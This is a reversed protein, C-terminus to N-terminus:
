EPNNGDEGTAHSYLLNFLGNEPNTSVMGTLFPCRSFCKASAAKASAAAQQGPIATESILSTDLEFFRLIRVYIGGNVQDFATLPWEVMEPSMKTFKQEFVSLHRL